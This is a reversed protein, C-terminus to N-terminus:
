SNRKERELVENVARDIAHKDERIRQAELMTVKEYFGTNYMFYEM